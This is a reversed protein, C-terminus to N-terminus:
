LAIQSEFQVFASNTHRLDDYYTQSQTIEINLCNLRDLIHEIVDVKKGVFPLSPFWPLQCLPLRKFHRDNYQLYHNWLRENKSGDDQDINLKTSKKVILKKLWTTEASELM